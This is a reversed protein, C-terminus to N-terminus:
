NEAHLKIFVASKLWNIRMQFFFSLFVSMLTTIHTWREANLLVWLKPGIEIFTDYVQV